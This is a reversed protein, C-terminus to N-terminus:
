HVAASDWRGGLDAHVEEFDAPRHLGGSPLNSEKAAEHAFLRCVALPTRMLRQRAAESGDLRATEARFRCSRLSGRVGIPEERPSEPARLFDRDLGLAPGESPNIVVGVPKPRRGRPAHKHAAM